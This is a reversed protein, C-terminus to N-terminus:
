GHGWVTYENFLAKYSSHCGYQIGKAAAQRLSQPQIQYAVNGITVKGGGKYNEPNKPDNGDCGDIILGTLYSKCDDLSPKFGGPGTLTIIVEEPTGEDYKQQNPGKKVADPCFHNEISDKVIDHSVYKNNGLGNCEKKAQSAPTLTSTPRLTSTPQQSDPKVGPIQDDRMRQIFADKLAKHGDFKPHFPRATWGFGYQQTHFDEGQPIIADPNTDAGLVTQFGNTVDVGAPATMVTVGDRVNAVGVEEGTKEDYYQLNWLWLDKNFYQDEFSRGKECFRHGEFLPDPQFNHVHVNPLKPTTAPPKYNKIVDAQIDNVQQVKDNILKRLGKVVKPRGVSLRDHAFTWGDCEDTTEDFFRVYSSVYLDFPYNLARKNQAVNLIDDLANTFKKRMADPKNLYDEAKQINQKCIGKGDTDEDWPKGWGFPHGPDIPQYICARAIAGFFANNGGFMGWVIEPDGAKDKMQRELDDMLTGGCAAFNFAQPDRSWSDDKEMQAGWAEKTRFCAESDTPKYINTSNYAVGSAWSDGIVAWEIAVGKSQVKSESAGKQELPDPSSSASEALALLLLVAGVSLARGMRSVSYVLSSKEFDM